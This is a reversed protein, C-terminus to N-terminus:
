GRRGEGRTWFDTRWTQKEMAARCHLFEQYWRELSQIYAKSSRQKLRTRSQAWDRMLTKELSDVRRMLHGFYQLKLKLM